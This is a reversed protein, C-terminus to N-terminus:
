KPNTSRRHGSGFCKAVPAAKPQQLKRMYSSRACNPTPDAPMAFASVRASRTQPHPHTRPVDVLPCGGRMGLCVPTESSRARGVVPGQLSLAVFILLISRNLTLFVFLWVPLCNANEHLVAHMFGAVKSLGIRYICSGGQLALAGLCCCSPHTLLTM